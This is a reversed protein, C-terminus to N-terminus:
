RVRAANFLQSQLHPPLLQRQWKREADVDDVAKLVYAAAHKAHDAVHATAAAHGAARAVLKASANTTERAAAHAAFAATRADTMRLDGRVWDRAAAIAVAPRPDDPEAISFVDLIHEACDAAWLALLQHDSFEDRRM